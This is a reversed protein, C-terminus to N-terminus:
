SRNSSRTRRRVPAAGGRKRPSVLPAPEPAVVDDWWARIAEAVDAPADEDIFQGARELHVTRVSDFSGELRALDTTDFGPDSDPWLILAPKVALRALNREVEELYRRGAVIERPFVRMVHRREPPFPGAYAAREDATLAGRKLNLPLYLRLMLDLRDVLLPSLPGGMLAAFLRVQLRENPWAWTSGLVIARVLEPRRGAVGLGIPGGWAYAVLTVDSLGLEDVLAEVVRSQSSPRFDFGPAAESLGFGPYDPAVCRFRDRLGGIVDRWGFSWSPNGNLFLLVPGEGEDVYHLRHGDTAAWRDEFPYLADPLWAPRVWSV